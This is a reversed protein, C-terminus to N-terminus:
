MVLNNNLRAQWERAQQEDIIWIPNVCMDLASQEAADFDGCDGLCWLNGAEDLAFWINSEHNGM